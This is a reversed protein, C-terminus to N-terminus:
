IVSISFERFRSKNQECIYYNKMPKQEVSTDDVSWSAHKEKKKM